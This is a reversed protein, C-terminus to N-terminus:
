PNKSGNAIQAKKFEDVKRMFNEYLADDNSIANLQNYYSRRVSPNDLHYKQIIKLSEEKSSLEYSAFIEVLNNSKITPTKSCSLFFLPIFLILIQLRRM